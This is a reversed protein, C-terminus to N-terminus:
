KRVQGERLCALLGLGLDAEYVSVMDVAKRRLVMPANARWADFTLQGFGIWNM